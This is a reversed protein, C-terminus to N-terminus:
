NKIYISPKISQFDTNTGTLSESHGVMLYGGPKLLRYIDALLRNRVDNDFYIMVNRCFVVDLPGTMPFPPQSLNLRRFVIMKKISDKVTYFDGDDRFARDFYRQRTVPPISELKDKSYEGALGRNLARTSIDTALIKLDVQRDELKEKLSLAMTYPEEGSSCAASWFRFRKQGREIWGDVIEDFFRFHDSERFFSTTNTSIADLLHVIEAGSRDRVVHNLYSKHDTLGLARMRKGVRASVLAEKGERLAIGSKSYVIRRFQEFTTRDM